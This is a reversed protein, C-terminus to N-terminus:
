LINRRGHSPSGRCPAAQGATVAMEVLFGRIIKITLDRHRRQCVFRDALVLARGHVELAGAPAAEDNMVIELQAQLQGVEHAARRELDIGVRYRTRSEVAQGDVLEAAVSRHQEDDLEHLPSRAVWKRGNRAQM